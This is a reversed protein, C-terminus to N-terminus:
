QKTKTKRSYWVKREIYKTSSFIMCHIFSDNETKWFCQQDPIQCNYPWRIICNVRIFCEIKYYVFEAQETFHPKYNSGSM